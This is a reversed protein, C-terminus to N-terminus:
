SAELAAGRGARAGRALPPPAGEGVVRSFIEGLSPSSVEFRRVRLRPLAASLARQADGADRLVLEAVGPEIRASVVGDIGLLFTGDGDFEIRATNRAFSAKVEGVPGELVVRGRDVVVVNDALSEALPMVHTSLLLTKGAARLEGFLRKVLAANVPDLGSMPEDLVLLEPDHVLAGCLQVKQQNGKSLTEIRARAVHELELSRLLRAASERARRPRVGKLEGLFALHDAVPMQKYLGREEPLYGVRDRIAVSDSRGGLVEVAGADPLLIGTVLRRPTTKGAGNRGLLATAGGRRVEFSVGDVARRSAFVKTAGRLSIAPTM